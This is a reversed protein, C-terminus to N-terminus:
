GEYEVAEMLYQCGPCKKMPIIKTHFESKDCDTCRYEIM